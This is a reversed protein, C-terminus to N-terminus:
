RWIPAIQKTYRRGLLKPLLTLVPGPVSQRLASLEEVPAENMVWAFFEAGVKPSSDRSFKRGMERIAPHDHQEAFLPESVAEENGLHTEAARRVEAVATSAADADARRGSAALSHMASHAGVLAAALAEHERDFQELESAQVGVARLAPWAIRHEGEHHRTLQDEFFDWGRRLDGARPKDGDVYTALATLLRAIDRRVAGHIVKNM